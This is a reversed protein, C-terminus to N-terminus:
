PSSTSGHGRALRKLENEDGRILAEKKKRSWRKVQKERYIADWVYNYYEVHVCRLPRRRYTYCTPELGARHQDLRTVLNGTMGTYYSGDACLLIYVCFIKEDYM